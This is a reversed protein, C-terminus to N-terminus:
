AAESLKSSRQSPEGEHLDEYLSRIVDEIPLAPDSRLLRRAVAEIDAFSYANPVPVM